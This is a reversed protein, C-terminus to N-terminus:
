DVPERSRRRHAPRYGRQAAKKVDSVPILVKRGFRITRLIKEAVMYDISRVSLGLAFAAERRSYLLKEVNPVNGSTVV